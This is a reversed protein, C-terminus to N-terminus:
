QDLQMIVAGALTRLHPFHYSDCERIAFCFLLCKGKQKTAKRTSYKLSTLVQHRLGCQFRKCVLVNRQPANCINSFELQRGDALELRARLHGDVWTSRKRIVHFSTIIPNTVFREKMASLYAEITM